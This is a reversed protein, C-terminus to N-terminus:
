PYVLSVFRRARVLTQPVMDCSGASLKASGLSADMWGQDSTRPGVWVGELRVQTQAAQGCTLMRLRSIDLMQESAAVEFM